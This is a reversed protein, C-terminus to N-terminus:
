VKCRVREREKEVKMSGVPSAVEPPRCGGVRAAGAKEGKQEERQMTEQAAPGWEKRSRWKGGVIKLQAAPLLCSVM